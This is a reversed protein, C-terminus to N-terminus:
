KGNLKIFGGDIAYDSGTIFGAEDSSLFLALDAIEQPKGMRGIPQTQSLKDFMEQEEGPYNKKIFGDVFPTHVRAPSICNCRINHALYDKAVSLTMTLVAGKTMSYAFRDFIGVSSAISALNLISGGGHSKMYRICAKTCKYIGKINVEYLRDLDAEEVAEINGVHAIGANNILIDISNLKAIKDICENVENQKSIDCAYAKASFGELEIQKVTEEAAEINFDLIYVTAGQRAFTLAIAEGIGSGGGTLVLGKNHLSFKTM